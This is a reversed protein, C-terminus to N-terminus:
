HCYLSIFKKKKEKKSIVILSSLNKKPNFKRYYQRFSADGSISSLKFKKLIMTAGNVM